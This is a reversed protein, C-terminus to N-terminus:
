TRGEVVGAVPFWHTYKRLTESRGLTPSTTTAQTCLKVNLGLWDGFIIKQIMALAEVPLYVGRIVVTPRSAIGLIMLILILM